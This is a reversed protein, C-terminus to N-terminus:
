LTAPARGRVPLLLAPVDAPTAAVADALACEEAPGYGWAAALCRIHNAHAAEIDYIRDGIMWASDSELSNERLLSALLDAKGHSAFEAQDGYIATFLGALTFFHLIRVAFRQQKSTCVYLPFGQRHLQTLMERVGAFVSNNKWGERDYCARYDHALAARAEQSADPLLEATWEEVPPGVFRDLLGQDGMGRADLVKRLCGVIGPKSDTITGDLDFILAPLPTSM